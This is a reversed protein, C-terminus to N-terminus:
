PNPWDSFGFGSRVRLPPARTALPAGAFALAVLFAVAALFAGAALFGALAGLFAFAALVPPTRSPLLVAVTTARSSRFPPAVSASTMFAVPHCAWETRPNM